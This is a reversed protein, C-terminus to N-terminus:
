SNTIKLKLVVEEIILSHDLSIEDWNYNDELLEDPIKGCWPLCDLRRAKQDWQGGLQIVGSLYVQKSKCLSVYASALGPIRGSKDPSIMLAVNVKWFGLADLWSLGFHNTMAADGVLSVIGKKDKLDMLRVNPEDECSIELLNYGLFSAIALSGARVSLVSNSGVNILFLIKSIM